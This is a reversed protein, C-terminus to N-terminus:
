VSSRLAPLPRVLLATYNLKTPRLNPPEQSTKTQLMMRFSSRMAQAKALRLLLAPDMRTAHLKPEPDPVLHMQM